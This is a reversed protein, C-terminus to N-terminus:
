ARSFSKSGSPMPWYEQCEVPSIIKAEIGFLEALAASRSLQHMRERTSALQLGGCQLWGPDYGSEIKLRAYLEASAKNVQTQASSSRLQGVQGASHWTTGSSVRNQELVIVDQWGAASFHYALSAGAIGGGIIVVRASAPIPQAPLQFEAKVPTNDFLTQIENM